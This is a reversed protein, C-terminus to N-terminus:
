HFQIGYKSIVNASRHSLVHFYYQDEFPVMLVGIAVATTRSRGGCIKVFNTGGSLYFRVWELKLGGLAHTHELRSICTSHDIMNFATSLDLTVLVTAKMADVAEFIDNSINLFATETYHHRHYASRLPCYLASVHPFLKAIFLRELVKCISNVNSIPKYSAPDEQDLRPEDSFNLNALRAIISALVNSCAMLLDTPVFDTPSLKALMSLLLKRVEAETVLRLDLLSEGDVPRDDRISHPQVGNLRLIIAAKIKEIEDSLYTAIIGVM